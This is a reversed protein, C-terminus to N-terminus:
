DKKFLSAVFTLFSTVTFLVIMSCFFFSILDQWTNDFSGILNNFYQLM